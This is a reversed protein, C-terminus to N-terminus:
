TLSVPGVCSRLLEAPVRVLPVGAPRAAPIAKNQSIAAYTTPIAANEIM